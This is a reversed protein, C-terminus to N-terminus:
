SHRSKPLDHSQAGSPTTPQTLLELPVVIPAPSGRLLLMVAYLPRQLMSLFTLLWAAIAAILFVRAIDLLAAIGFVLHMKYTCVAYM